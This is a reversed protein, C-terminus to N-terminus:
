KKVDNYRCNSDSDETNSLFPSEAPVCGVCSPKWVTSSRGFLVAASDGVKDQLVSVLHRGLQQGVLPRDHEALLLYGVNKFHKIM